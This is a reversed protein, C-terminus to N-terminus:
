RLSLSFSLSLSLSLSLSHSLSLSLSHCLSLPLSLTLTHSLSIISGGDAAEKFLHFAKTMNKSSGDMYQIGLGNQAPAYGQDAALRYLRLRLM